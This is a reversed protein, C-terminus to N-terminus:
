TLRGTLGLKLFFAKNRKESDAVLKSYSIVEFYANYHRKYGFYGLQDPTDLLEFHYAWSKLKPSDDCIIYCFFPMRDPIKVPRGEPTRAKGARIEDIYTLAQAFPNEKESYEDRLPKKFEIITISSFPVETAESFAVAKDFVLIDPEKKSENELVKAKRIPQDSSLFVHFALREDVLWLNHEEFGVDDSTKGRPFIIDHIRDERKYKGDDQIELQRRLFEIIAKRHCVYQALDAHNVESIKEFYEKFRNKFQDFDLSLPSTSELLKQEDRLEVQLEYYGEHLTREIENESADPELEDIKHELYRYIPRYMAGNGQIYEQVRARKQQAVPATYPLIFEKCEAYIADRLENLTLEATFLENRDQALNFGTRDPNVTSDLIPSNVYAAYVFEASGKEPDLLKRGLNPVHGALKERLVVREHACLYLRHDNEHTSYLRVHLVEVRQSKVQISSRKSKAGMEKEFFDDLPISDGTSRDRLIINPPSPSIFYELFEEVIFIAITELGKPCQSRYKEKFGRLTVITKRPSDAIRACSPNEIGSGRPVFSFRRRNMQGPTGFISDVEVSDFGALWKFRGIGKGGRNAKFTTDSITFADFNQDDFGVGNDEVMFGIIDAYQGDAEPLLGAEDRIIEIEVRGKKENADDIAQISNIIAEFLPLLPKSTPFSSNRVRGAVDTNM